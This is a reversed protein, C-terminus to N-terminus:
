DQGILRRTGILRGSDDRLGYAISTDPALLDSRRAAADLTVYSALYIVGPVPPPIRPRDQIRRRVRAITSGALTVAGRESPTSKFKVRAARVNDPTGGPVSFRQGDELELIIPNPTLNIFKM